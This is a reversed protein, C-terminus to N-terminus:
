EQTALYTGFAYPTIVKGHIASDGFGSGYFTGNIGTSRVEQFSSFTGDNRIVAQMRYPNISAQHAVAKIVSQLGEFTIHMYINEWNQFELYDPNFTGEIYGFYSAGVPGPEGSPNKNDITLYQFLSDIDQDSLVYEDIGDFFSQLNAWEQLENMPNSTNGNETKTNGTDPDRQVSQGGGGCGAILM